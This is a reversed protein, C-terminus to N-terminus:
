DESSKSPSKLTLLLEEISILIKAKIKWQHVKEKKVDDPVRVVISEFVQIMSDALELAKTASLMEVNSVHHAYHNRYDRIIELYKVTEWRAFKAQEFGKAFFMPNKKILSLM